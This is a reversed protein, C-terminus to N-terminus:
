RSTTARTGSLPTQADSVRRLGWRQRRPDSAVLTPIIELARAREEDDKQLRTKRSAVLSESAMDLRVSYDLRLMRTAVHDASLKMIRYSTDKAANVCMPVLGGFFDLIRVKTGTGLHKGSRCFSECQEGIRRLLEELLRERVADGGRKLADKLAAETDPHGAQLEAMLARTKAPHVRTSEQEEGWNVVKEVCLTCQKGYELSQERISGLVDRSWRIALSEELRIAFENPIDIKKASGTVFTGGRRVAARLTAWHAVGLGQLYRVITTQAQESAQQVVQLILEPIEQQLFHRFSQQYSRLLRRPGSKDDLFRDLDRRLKKIARKSRGRDSCELRITEVSRLIREVFQDSAEVIRARLTDEQRQVLRSLEERLGPIGSQGADEIRAPDTTDSFQFKRFEEASVVHVSMGEALRTLTSAAETNDMSQRLQLAVEAQIRSMMESQLFAFHEVWGRATEPDEDREERWADNASLDIKVAIVFLQVPDVSPDDAAHALRSFFGSSRLLEASEQTIGSRDVVLVVAKARERVWTQTVRRYQDNSIGLGPLDVVTLGTRLLESSFGVELTDVLPSLHGSAHFRLAQRVDSSSGSAHFRSGARALAVARSVREVRQADRTELKHGFRPKMKLAVRICDVLYPADNLATPSGRFLLSATRIQSELRASGGHKAADEVDDAAERRYLPDVARLDRENDLDPHGNSQQSEVYHELLYRLQDLKEVSLYTVSFYQEPAYRVCTAQATLPGIGGQPLVSRKDAILTNVLTSKGVGSHGLFCVACEEGVRAQLAEIREMNDNLSDLRQPSFRQM